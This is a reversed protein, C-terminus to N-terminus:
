EDSKGKKGTGYIKQCLELFRWQNLEDPRERVMTRYQTRIESMKKSCIIASKSLIESIELWLYTRVYKPNKFKDLNSLYWELLQETEEDTWTEEVGSDEVIPKPTSELLLKIAEERALIIKLLDSFPTKQGAVEDTNLNYARKLYNIKNFVKNVPECVYNALETWLYKKEYKPSIFDEINELYYQLAQEVKSDPLVVDKYMKGDILAETQEPKLFKPKLRIVKEMLNFYPTRKVNPDIDDIRKSNNHKAKLKAFMKRCALPTKDGLKTAIDAWMDKPNIEKGKNSRIYNIYFILLRKRTRKTWKLLPKPRVVETHETQDAQEIFDSTNETMEQDQEPAQIIIQASDIQSLDQGEPLVIICEYDEETVLLISPLHLIHKFLPQYYHATFHLLIIRTERIIDELYM